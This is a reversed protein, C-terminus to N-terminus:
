GSRRCADGAAGLARGGARPREGTRPLRPARRRAGHRLVPLRPVPSAGARPLAPVRRAGGGARGARPRGLLVDAEVGDALLGAGDYLEVGGPEPRELRLARASPVPRRLRVRSSDTALAATLVGAVYGGHVIEPLGAYAADILLQRAPM